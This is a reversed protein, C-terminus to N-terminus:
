KEKCNKHKKDFNSKISKLQEHKVTEFVEFKGCCSCRLSFPSHKIETM